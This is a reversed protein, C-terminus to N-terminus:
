LIQISINTHHYYCRNAFIAARYSGEEVNFAVGYNKGNIVYGLILNDLDLIMKIIDNERFKSAYFKGDDAVSRSIEGYRDLFYATGDDNAFHSNNARWTKGQEIIKNWYRHYSDNKKRGNGSQGRM